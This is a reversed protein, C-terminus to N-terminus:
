DKPNSKLHELEDKLKANEEALERFQDIFSDIDGVSEGAEYKTRNLEEQAQSIAERQREEIREIAEQLERLEIEILDKEKSASTIRADINEIASLRDEIKELTAVDVEESCASLFTLIGISFAIRLKKM